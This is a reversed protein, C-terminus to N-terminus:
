PLAFLIKRRLENRKHSDITPGDWLDGDEVLLYTRIREPTPLLAGVCFGFFSVLGGVIGMLRGGEPSVDVIFAGFLIGMGIVGIGWFILHAVILASRRSKPEM